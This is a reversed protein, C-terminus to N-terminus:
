AFRGAPQAVGRTALRYAAVPLILWQLLPALGTGTLPTVPMFESYAWSGRLGVNLWESFVTYGLGLAVAAALVRIRGARPWAEGGVLLLAALLTFGGIMADGATCHLGAYVIERATGTEWITYLPMQAFEWILSLVALIAVHRALVGRRTRWGRGAMAPRRIM